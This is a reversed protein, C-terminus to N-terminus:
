VDRKAETAVGVAQAKNAGRLEDRTEDVDRCPAKFSAYVEGRHYSERTVVSRGIASM